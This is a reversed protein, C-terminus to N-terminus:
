KRVKLSPVVRKKKGCNRCAYEEVSRWASNVYNSYSGKFSWEHKACRKTKKSIM